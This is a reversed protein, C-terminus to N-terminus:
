GSGVAGTALLLVLLSIPVGLDSILIATNGPAFNRDRGIELIHNGAALLLFTGGAISAAIWAAPSDVSGAYIGTLGVALNAFGVEYQFGNTEWGISEATKRAFVTHFLSGVAGTWGMAIYLMWRLAQEDFPTAADTGPAKWGVLAFIWALGFTIAPALAVM